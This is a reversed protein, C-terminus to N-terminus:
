VPKHIISNHNKLTTNIDNINFIEGSVFQSPTYLNSNLFFDLAKKIELLEGKM